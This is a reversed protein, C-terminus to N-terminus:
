ELEGTERRLKAWATGLRVRVMLEQMRVDRLDRAADLVAVMPGQGAAFSGVASEVVLRSRPLVDNRLATLRTREALVAEREAAISGAIMRQMADIDASTMTVMSQAEAVGAGLRGRWLPVSVGVMAMVGPGELMTYSPGARVLAMPSYMSRMVEVDAVARSHEARAAALEPRRALGTKVLADLAPPESLDDTWALAPLPADPARALATDLMAEASRIESTLARRDADLRARENDLRLVDAQMGQGSALHARAVSALQDVLAVQEDLIPALGRREGLMFYAELAELEVDEAVRHAEASWRVAEAEAARRRDGLVGSLPFEQQVTVSGDVGAVPIPLHDMSVMVMPDPLASEIM